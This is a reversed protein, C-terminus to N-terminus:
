VPEGRAWRVVRRTLEALLLAVALLVLLQWRGPSAVVTDGLRAVYGAVYVQGPEGLTGKAREIAYALGLRALEVSPDRATAAEPTADGDTTLYAATLQALFGCEDDLKSAVPDLELRGIAHPVPVPAMSDRPAATTDRYAVLLVTRAPRFKMALLVRAVEYLPAVQRAEDEDTWRTGPGGLRAGIVVVEDPRSTGRIRLIVSEQDASPQFISVARTDLGQLLYVAREFVARDPNKPSRWSSSLVDITERLHAPDVRTIAAQVLDGRDLTVRPAPAAAATGIMALLVLVVRM